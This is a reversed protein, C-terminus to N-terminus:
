FNRVVAGALCGNGCLKGLYYTTSCCQLPLKQLSQFNKTSFNQAISAHKVMRKQSVIHTIFYGIETSLVYGKKFTKLM